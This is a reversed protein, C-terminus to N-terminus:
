LVRKDILLELNKNNFSEDVSKAILNNTKAISKLTSFYLIRNLIYSDVMSLKSYIEPKQKRNIKKNLKEEENKMLKNIEEEAYQIEEKTLKSLMLDKISYDSVYHM